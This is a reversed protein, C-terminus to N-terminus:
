LPQNKYSIILNTTCLFHMGKSLLYSTIVINECKTRFRIHIEGSIQRNKEKLCGGLSLLLLTSKQLKYDFKQDM